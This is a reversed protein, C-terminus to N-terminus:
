ARKRKSRWVDRPQAAALTDYPNYGRECPREEILSLGFTDKKENQPEAAASSRATAPWRPRVSHKM